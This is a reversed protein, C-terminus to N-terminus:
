EGRLWKDGRMLSFLVLNEGIWYRLVILPELVYVFIDTTKSIKVKSYAYKSIYVTAGSLALAENNNSAHATVLFSTVLNLQSIVKTSSHM